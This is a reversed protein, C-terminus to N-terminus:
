APRECSGWCSCDNWSEVMVVRGEESLGVLELRRAAAAVLVEVEVDVAVVAAMGGCGGRVLRRLGDCASGGRRGPGM